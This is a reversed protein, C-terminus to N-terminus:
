ESLPLVSFDEARVIAVAPILAAIGAMSVAQVMAASERNEITPHGFVTHSFVLDNNDCDIITPDRRIQTELVSFQPNENSQSLWKGGSPMACTKGPVSMTEARGFCAITTTAILPPRIEGFRSGALVLDLTSTRNLCSNKELLCSELRQPLITCFGPKPAAAAIKSSLPWCFFIALLM